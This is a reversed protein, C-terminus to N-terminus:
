PLGKETYIRDTPVTEQDDERSLEGGRPHASRHADVLGEVTLHTYQQTTSLSAHGLMEQIARLDAGGELLHTAFSHRLAHPHVDKVVGAVFGRQKVIRRLSRASLRGGRANLFLAQGAEPRQNLLGRLESWARLAEICPQSLPVLREKRGKGLVRVEGRELDISRRDLGVCESARLGSGYLLELLCLDRLGQVPLEALETSADHDLMSRAEPASLVSPLRHRRRPSNIARAPNREDGRREAVWDLFTRMASLKRRRTAPSSHAHERALFSRVDVAEIRDASPGQGASLGWHGVLFQRLQHLDREYARVTHLSLGREVRLFDLFRPLREDM